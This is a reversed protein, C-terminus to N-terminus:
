ASVVEEFDRFHLDAVKPLTYEKATHAASERFRGLSYHESVDQITTVKM